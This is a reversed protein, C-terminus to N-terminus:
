QKNLSNDIRIPQVLENKMYNSQDTESKIKQKKNRNWFESYAIKTTINKTWAELPPLNTKYLQLLKIAMRPYKDPSKVHILKCTFKAKHRSIIKKNRM